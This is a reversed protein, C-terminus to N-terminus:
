SKFKLAKFNILQINLDGIFEKIERSCLIELERQRPEKYSSEATFDNIFGPHCMIEVTSGPNKTNLETLTTVLNELTAGEGFFSSVSFDPTPINARRFHTCTNENVHRLPLRYKEALEVMVELVVPHYQLHHHADMHTPCINLNTLKELQATIERQVEKKEVKQQYFGDPERFLGTENLLGPIHEVPSIPEGRTLNVHLGVGLEPNQAALAAAEQCYPQNVMFTTSTVIGERFSHIIGQNVGSDYGFDDANVILKM